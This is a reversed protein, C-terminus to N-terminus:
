PHTVVLLMPLQYSFTFQASFSYPSYYAFPFVHHNALHILFPPLSPPSTSCWFTCFLSTTFCLLSLPTKVQLPKTPNKSQAPTEIFWGRMMIGQRKVRALPQCVAKLLSAAVKVSKETRGKADSRM